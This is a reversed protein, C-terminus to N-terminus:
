IGAKVTNPTHGMCLDLADTDKARKGLTKFTHRLRYFTVGTLAWLRRRGASPSRQNREDGESGAIVGDEVIDTESYYPQRKRTIFVLAEQGQVEIAAATHKLKKLGELAERTRKWLYGVRANGTKHRPYNLRGTALDIHRWRLRGIDAPGMGTNVGLLTMAALNPPLVAVLKDVEAGTVIRASHDILGARAKEVRIAQITTTPANFATGFNPLPCHGNGAGWAFMAKILAFMRKRARAKLKRTEGVIAVYRAFHEPKLAAVSTDTKIVGVFKTLERNYDGYMVRSISNSLVDLRRQALYLKFLEGVSLQGAKANLSRLHDTGNLIGPLRNEYESLLVNARLITPKVSGFYYPKSTSRRQGNATRGSAL